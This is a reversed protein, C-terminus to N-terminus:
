YLTNVQLLLCYLNSPDPITNLLTESFLLNCKQLRNIFFQKVTTSYAHCNIRACSHPIFTNNFLPKRCAFCFLKWRSIHSTSLYSISDFKHLKIVGLNYREVIYPDCLFLNCGVFSFTLLLYLCFSLGMCFNNFDAFKFQWVVQSTRFIVSFLRSLCFSFFYLSKFQSVFSLDLLLTM